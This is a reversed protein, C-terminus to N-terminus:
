WSSSFSTVCLVSLSPHGFLSFPNALASLRCIGANCSIPTTRIGSVPGFCLLFPRLITIRFPSCPSCLSCPFTWFAGSSFFYGIPHPDSPDSPDFSGHSRVPVLSSMGNQHLVTIVQLPASQFVDARRTVLYAKDPVHVFFCSLM